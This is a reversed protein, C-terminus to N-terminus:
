MDNDLGIPLVYGYKFKDLLEYDNCSLSVHDIIEDFKKQIRITYSKQRAGSKSVM